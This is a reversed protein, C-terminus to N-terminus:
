DHHREPTPIALNARRPTNGEFHGDKEGTHIRTNVTDCLARLNLGDPKKTGSLHSQLFTARM